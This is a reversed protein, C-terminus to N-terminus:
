NSKSFKKEWLWELKRLLVRSTECGVYFWSLWVDLYFTDYTRIEPRENSKGRVYVRGQFRGNKKGGRTQNIIIKQFSQTGASFSSQNESYHEYTDHLLKCIWVTFLVPWVALLKQERWSLVPFVFDEFISVRFDIPRSTWKMYSGVEFYTLDLFLVTEIVEPESSPLDSLIPRNHM